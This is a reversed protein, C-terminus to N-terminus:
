EGKIQLFNIVEDLLEIVHGTDGVHSWNIENPECDFHNDVCHGIAELKKNIEITNEVFKYFARKKSKM